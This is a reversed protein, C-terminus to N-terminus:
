RQLQTDALPLRRASQRGSLSSESSSSLDITAGQKELLRNRWDTLYPRNWDDSFQFCRNLYGLAVAYNGQLENFSTALSYAWFATPNFRIAEEAERLARSKQGLEWLARVRVTRVLETMRPDSIEAVLGKLTELAMAPHRASLEADALAALVKPDRGFRDEAVSLVRVQEDRAHLVSYGKALCLYARDDEPHTSRWRNGVALAENAITPAFTSTDCELENRSACDADKALTACACDLLGVSETLEGKAIRALISKAVLRSYHGDRTMAMVDCASGAIAKETAGPSRAEAVPLASLEEPTADLRAAFRAV